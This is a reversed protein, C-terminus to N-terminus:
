YTRRTAAPPNYLAWALAAGWLVITWGGVITLAAIAPTNCHEREVAIFVPIFYIALAVCALMVYITIGAGATTAGSLTNSNALWDIAVAVAFVSVLAIPAAFRWKVPRKLAATISEVDPMPTNRGARVPIAAFRRGCNKCGVERGRAAEPVNGAHQCHPCAITITPM